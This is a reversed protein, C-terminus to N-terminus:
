CLMWKIQFFTSTVALPLLRHICVVMDIYCAVMSSHLCLYLCLTIHEWSFFSQKKLLKIKYWGSTRYTYNSAPTNRMSRNKNIDTSYYIIHQLQFNCFMAVAFRMMLCSYDKGIFSFLTFIYFTPLHSLNKRKKQTIVSAYNRPNHLLSKTTM